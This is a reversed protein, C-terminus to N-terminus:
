VAIDQQHLYRFLADGVAKPDDHRSGFVLRAVGLGLRRYSEWQAEDFFQDATTEQPFASQREGYEQVDLPACALRRPKLLVIRCDPRASRDGAEDHRYVNLLMACRDNVRAGPAFDEAAGFVRHLEPDKTIERDVEIEIRFDIRALRILNALDGFRYSPDCGNDCAVILGVKREPRLLEYVATNEFHGGDSLYQWQRHLGYFRGMLEYLLFTQTRLAAEFARELWPARDTGYGSSWWTGLRVNALGLLLSFGLSTSRGLGTTFAAGSTGVWQGITLRETLDGAAGTRFPYHEGDISFGEPQLCLPKGKRDRQVLQEASDVTQNVTINILHVPALVDKAYYAAHEIQDSDLPEAVSRGATSETGQSFREGNSAGLYARTLRASYLSQLTSLNIFAPFRGVIWALAIFIASAWFVIRVHKEHSFWGPVPAEGHWRIWQVLLAWLTATLTLLLVGALGAALNLSVKGIWAPKDKGEFVQALHRILWTAAGALAAPTVVSRLNGATLDLYLWQGLTDASALVATVIGLSCGDALSRTVLVRYQAVSRSRGIHVWYVLIAGATAVGAAIGAWAAPHWIARDVSLVVISPILFILTVAIAYIAARSFAGLPESESHGPDPFSLWFAIGYPLLVSYAILAPLLWLPSWWIGGARAAGLLSDELAAVAPFGYALACRLLALLALSSLFLTALVYQVSFWNRIAVAAAYVLDGAGTPTLYRGSERLWATPASLLDQGAFARSSRMRTPPEYALAEHAEAAAETPSSHRRLRGPLYLSCFFSGIYGGGSVTSLYDIQSLLSTAAPNEPKPAPAPAHNNGPRPERVQLRALAQLVGLSFTASRIGGGSLALARHGRSVVSTDPIGLRRRREAIREGESDIAKRLAAIRDPEPPVPKDM